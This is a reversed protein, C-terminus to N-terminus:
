GFYGSKEKKVKKVSIRCCISTGAVWEACATNLIIGMQADVSGRLWTCHGVGSLWGRSEQKRSTPADHAKLAGGLGFSRTVLAPSHRDLGAFSDLAPHV